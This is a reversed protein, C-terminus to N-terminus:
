TIVRTEVVVRRISTLWYVSWIHCNAFSNQEGADLADACDVWRDTNPLRSTPETCVSGVHGGCLFGSESNDLSSCVEAGCVRFQFTQPFFGFILECSETDFVMIEFCLDNTMEVAAGGASCSICFHGDGRVAAVSFSFTFLQCIALRVHGLRGTVFLMTFSVWLQPCGGRLEGSLSCIYLASLLRFARERRIVWCIEFNEVIPVHM